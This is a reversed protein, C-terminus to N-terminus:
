KDSDYHLNIEKKIRDITEMIAVTESLPMVSSELKGALIQNTAEEIEFRFGEADPFDYQEITTTNSGYLHIQLQKAALFDGPIVIKGKEGFIEVRNELSIQLNSSLVALAGTNYQFLCVAQEDVGTKGIQACAKISEPQGKM